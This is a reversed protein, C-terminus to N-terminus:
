DADSDAASLWQVVDIMRKSNQGPEIESIKIQSQLRADRAEQLRELSATSEVLERHRLIDGLIPKFSAQFDNM